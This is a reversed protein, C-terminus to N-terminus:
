RMQRPQATSQQSELKPLMLKTHAWTIYKSAQTSAITESPGITHLISTLLLLFLILMFPPWKGGTQAATELWGMGFALATKPKPSGKEEGTTRLRRLVLRLPATANQYLGAMSGREGKSSQLHKRPFYRRYSPPSVFYLVEVRGFGMLRKEEM